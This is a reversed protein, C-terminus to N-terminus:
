QANDTRIDIDVHSISTAEPKRNRLICRLFRGRLNAGVTTENVAVTVFQADAISSRTGIMPSAAFGVEVGTGAQISIQSETAMSNDSGSDLYGTDIIMGDASAGFYITAAAGGATLGSVSALTLLRGNGADIISITTDLTVGASDVIGVRMGVHLNASLDSSTTFVSGALTGVDSAPTSASRVDDGYVATNGSSYSGSVNVWKDVGEASDGVGVASRKEVTVTGNPIYLRITDGTNEDLIFLSQLESSCSLRVNEHTPLLDQFPTGVDNGQEQKVAWLRGNFAYVMGSMEVTARASYAGVGGGIPVETENGPSGVLATAWNRGFLYLVAGVARCGLLEGVGGGGVRAEYTLTHPFTEWGFPGPETYYVRNEEGIVGVQSQWTFFQKIKEPTAFDTWPAGFGLANNPADDVYHRTESGLRAVFYLPAYRSNNLASQIDSETYPEEGAIGQTISRFLELAVIDSRPVIPFAVSDSGVEPERDDYSMSTKDLTLDTLLNAHTGINEQEAPLANNDPDSAVLQDERFTYYAHMHQYLDPQIRNNVNWGHPGEAGTAAMPGQGDAWIRFEGIHTDALNDTGTNVFGGLTLWDTGDAETFYNGTETIPQTFVANGNISMGDVQISNDTGSSRLQISYMNWEHFDNIFTYSARELYFSTSGSNPIEENAIVYEAGNNLQLTISGGGRTSYYLALNSDEISPGSAGNANAWMVLPQKRSDSYTATQQFIKANVAAATRSHKSTWVMGVSTADTFTPKEQSADPWTPWCDLVIGSALPRGAMAASRNHASAQLQTLTKTGTWLRAQFIVADYPMTGAWHNLLWRPPASPEDMDNWTDYLTWPCPLSLNNVWAQNAYPYGYISSQTQQGEPTITPLVTSHDGVSKLVMSLGQGGHPDSWGTFFTASNYAAYTGGWSDRSYHDPVLANMSRGVLTYWTGATADNVYVNVATGERTIFLSYDHDEKWIPTDSAAALESADTFTLCKMNTTPGQSTMAYNSYNSPQYHHHNAQTEERGIGIVLRPSSADDYTSAGAENKSGYLATSVWSRNSLRAPHYWKGGRDTSGKHGCQFWAAISPNSGSMLATGPFFAHSTEFDGIAFIGQVPMKGTYVYNAYDSGSSEFLKNKYRFSIQTTFNANLNIQVGTSSKFYQGGINYGGLSAAGQLGREWITETNEEEALEEVKAFVEMVIRKSGATGLIDYTGSDAGASETTDKTCKMWTEGLESSGIPAGESSGIIFRGASSTIAAPDLRRIPGYTGDATVYRYGYSVAGALVGPATAKVSVNRWPSPVGYERVSEAEEDVVHGVNNSAILLKSGIRLAEADTKFKHSMRQTGDTIGVISGEGVVHGGVVAVHKADVLPGAAYGPVASNNTQLVGMMGTNNKTKDLLSNGSQYVLCNDTPGLDATVVDQYMAFKTLVGMFNTTESETGDAGVWLKPPANYDIYPPLWTSTITVTASESAGNVMLGLVKDVSKSAFITFASGKSLAADNFTHTVGSVTFTVYGSTDITILGLDDFDLLVQVGDAPAQLVTGQLMFTYDVAFLASRNKATFFQEIETTLQVRLVSSRGNFAVSDATPAPPAPDSLLYEGGSVESSVAQGGETLLYHNQLNTAAPTRNAYAATILGTSLATTYIALNSIVHPVHAIKDTALLSNGLVEVTFKSGATAGLTLEKITDDDSVHLHLKGTSHDYQLAVNVVSGLARATADEVVEAVDSSHKADIYLRCGSASAYKTYLSWYETESKQVTIVPLEAAATSVLHQGVKLSFVITWSASATLKETSFWCAANEKGDILVGLSNTLYADRVSGHRRNVELNSSPEVEQKLLLANLDGAANAARNMQKNDFRQKPM